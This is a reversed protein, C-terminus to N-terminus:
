RGERHSWLGEAMWRVWQPACHLRAEIAEVRRQEGCGVVGRGRRVGEHKLGESFRQVWM